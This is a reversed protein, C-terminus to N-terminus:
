ADSISLFIFIASISSIMMTTENPADQGIFTMFDYLALVVLPLLRPNKSKMKKPYM